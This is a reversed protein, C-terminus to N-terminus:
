IPKREVVQPLRSFLPLVTVHHQHVDMSFQDQEQQQRRHHSLLKLTQIQPTKLGAFQDM